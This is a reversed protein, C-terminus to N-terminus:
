QIVHVVVLCIETINNTIVFAKKNIVKIFFFLCFLIIFM